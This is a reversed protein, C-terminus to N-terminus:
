NEDEDMQNDNENVGDDVQTVKLSTPGNEELKKLSNAVRDWGWCLIKIPMNKWMANELM